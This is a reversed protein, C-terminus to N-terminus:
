FYRVRRAARETRSNWARTAAGPAKFYNQEEERLVTYKTHTKKKCSRERSRTDLSRPQVNAVKVSTQRNECIVGKFEIRESKEVRKIMNYLMEYIVLFFNERAQRVNNKGCM